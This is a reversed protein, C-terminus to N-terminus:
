LSLRKGGCTENIFEQGVSKTVLLLMIFTASVQVPQRARRSQPGNRTFEIDSIAAGLVSIIKELVAIAYTIKM